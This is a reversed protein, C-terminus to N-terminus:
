VTRQWRSKERYVTKQMCIVKEAKKKKRLVDVKM